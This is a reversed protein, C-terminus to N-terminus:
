EHSAILTVVDYCWYQTMYSHCRLQLKDGHSSSIACSGAFTRFHAAIHNTLITVHGVDGYNIGLTIACDTSNTSINRATALWM